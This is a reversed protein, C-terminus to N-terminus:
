REPLGDRRLNWMYDVGKGCEDENVADETIDEGGQRTRCHGGTPIDEANLTRQVIPMPHPRLARFGEM